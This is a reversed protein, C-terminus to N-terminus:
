GEETTIIVVGAEALMETSLQFSEAWRECSPARTILTKIGAQIILKACDHCPYLTVIMTAGHTRWGTRAAALLANAEAHVVRRYKEPREWREAPEPIGRPLGNYGSPGFEGGAGLLLAGVQTSPDKSLAAVADAIALYKLHKIM